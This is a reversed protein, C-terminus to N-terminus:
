LPVRVQATLLSPGYGAFHVGVEAGLHSSVDAGVFAKAGFRTVNGVYPGIGAGIYVRSNSVLGHSLIQDLTLPVLTSVGGFNASIITEGDIRTQLGPILHFSNFTVDAGVAAKWRPSALAGLRLAFTVPKAV